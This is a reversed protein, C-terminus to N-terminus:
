SLTLSCIESPSKDRKGDAGTNEYRDVFYLPAGDADTYTYTVALKYGDALLMEGRTPKKPKAAVKFPPVNYRNGLAAVANLPTGGEIQVFADIVSGGEGTM